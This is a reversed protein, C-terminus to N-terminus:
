NTVILNIRVGYNENYVYDYGEIVVSGTGVITVNGWRDISVSTITSSKSVIRWLYYQATPYPSNQVDLGLQYEGDSLKHTDSFESYVVESYTNTDQVVIFQKVFVISPDDKNIAMIKVTGASKGFVTGHQSVTAISNNSSYWYYDDRSSQTVYHYDLYIVRTFGIVINTGRYSRDSPLLAKEYINVQSGGDTGYDPDPILASGGYQTVQRNFTVDFAANDGKNFYAVFYTGTSLSEIFHVKNSTSDLDNFTIETFDEDYLIVEIESTSSFFLNMAKLM